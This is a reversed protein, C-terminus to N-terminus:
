KEQASRGAISAAYSPKPRVALMLRRGGVLKANQLRNSTVVAMSRQEIIAQGRELTSLGKHNRYM